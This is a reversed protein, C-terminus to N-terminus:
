AEQVTAYGMSALAEDARKRSEALDPLQEGGISGDANQGNGTVRGDKGLLAAIETQAETVATEVRTKFADKDLAGEKVPPNAALAKQLRAKTVDPLEAEALQSSVFDGAERFLLQERAKALEAEATTKAEEVAKLADRAEKLEQESMADETNSQRGNANAAFAAAESMNSEVPVYKTQVVVEFPADSSLLVDNETTTMGLQFTASSKETNLEFVVWGGDVSWDRPWIYREPGGFRNKLKDHLRDRLDDNSLAEQIRAALWHAAAESTEESDMLSLVATLQELAAKLKTENAKSLVRGAESLFADIGNPQTPPPLKGANPASEFISVIAGGAGPVTVFDVSKGAAIEQIIRGSKGEAEGTTHRGMGRISVGIHEGIEDIASAYGAFPRAEAYMGPGHPGGELWIPDSVTVAALDRLDGEPREMEESPTAHNWMMHTGAPFVKPIDRELVDRPYYGSSGWGPQILKLSITGDRRVARESLPIFESLQDAM